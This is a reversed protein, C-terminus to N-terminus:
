SANRTSPSSSHPASPPPSFSIEKKPAEEKKPTSRTGIVLQDAKEKIAASNRFEKLLEDYMEDSIKATPKNDIEHGVKALFDVITTTGVNLEKAVKVLRQAM